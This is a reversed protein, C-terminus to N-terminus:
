PQTKSASMGSVARDDRRRAGILAGLLLQNALQYRRMALAARIDAGIQSATEGRVSMFVADDSDSPAFAQAIATAQEQPLGLREWQQALGRRIRLLQEAADAQAKAQQAEYMQNRLELGQMLTNYYASNSQRHFLLDGLSQGARYANNNQAVCPVSAVCLAAGLCASIRRKM